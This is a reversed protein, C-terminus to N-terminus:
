AEQTLYAAMEAFGHGGPHATIWAPKHNLRDAFRAVNAVGVTHRFFAFMPEDNPADGIYLVQQRADEPGLGYLEEMATLAMARKGYSGFWANVHISSPHATAGAARLIGVVEEVVAPPLPPVEQAIDIALDCARFPQDSALATGPVRALVADALADLRRRADRRAADDLWWRRRLRGDGARHFYFAGSEGVVADVPWCRAMMDCWGACGGTVPIVRLGADQLRALAAFSEPPLRGNHTLTDDVDCLVYRIATPPMEALPRLRDSLSLSLTM